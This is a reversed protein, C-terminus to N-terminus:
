MRRQHMTLRSRMEMPSFAPVPKTPLVRSLSREEKREDDESRALAASDPAIRERRHEDASVLM